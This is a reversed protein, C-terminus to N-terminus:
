AERRPLAVFFTAGKGPESEAWAAGGGRRAFGYVAPLGLGSGKEPPKTTFFPEFLRKMVEPAIGTGTDAVSVVVYRGPALGVRRRAEETDVYADRASLKVTGGEPMADRANLVLNVVAQDLEAPDALIRGGGEPVDVVLRIERGVIPSLLAASSRLASAVELPVRVAPDRRGFDLLRRATGAARTASRHIAELSTRVPEGEPLRALALEAHGIVVSLANKFEHAVSESLRGVAEMRQAHALQAATERAETVDRSAVVVGAIAPVDLFSTVVSEMTRFSGDRHRLRLEIRVRHGPHERAEALAVQLASVDDEHVFDLGHKGLVDEPRLDFVTRVAPSAYRCSGGADYVVVVDLASEVLARYYAEGPAFAPVDAAATGPGHDSM